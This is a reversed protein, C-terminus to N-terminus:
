ESFTPMWIISASIFYGSKGTARPTIRPVGKKMLEQTRLVAQQPNQYGNEVWVGNPFLKWALQGIKQGAAMRKQAAEGLPSLVEKKNRTLWLKKPCSKYKTYQSKSFM